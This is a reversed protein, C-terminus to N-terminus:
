IDGTQTSVHTCDVITDCHLAHIMRTGMEPLYIWRHFVVKYRLGGTTVATGQESEDQRSETREEAQRGATPGSPTLQLSGGSGTSELM